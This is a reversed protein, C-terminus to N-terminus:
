VARRGKAEAYTGGTVAGIKVRDGFAFTAKCSTCSVTLSNPTEDSRGPHLGWCHPCRFGPWEKAASDAVAAPPAARVTPRPPAAIPAPQPNSAPQSPGPAEMAARAAIRSPESERQRLTADSGIPADKRMVYVLWGVLGCFVLTGGGATKMTAFLVGALVSACVIATILASEQGVRAETDQRQVANVTVQACEQVNMTPAEVSAPVEFAALDERALTDGRPRDHRQNTAKWKERSAAHAVELWRARELAKEILKIADGDHEFHFFERGSSVRVKRLLQHVEAEIGPVDEPLFEWERVVKFPFPVGTVSETGYGHYLDRARAAGTRLTFGIKYLNPMGPNSLCYLVGLDVGDRRSFAPGGESDNNMDQMM